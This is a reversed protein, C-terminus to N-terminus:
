LELAGAIKTTAKSKNLTYLHLGSVGERILEQCQSTAYDIGTERIAKPEDGASNLAKLLAAPFRSGEALEAMRKMGSITTIPMIGAVIPLNIGELACRERYDLFDHNDFFLQTCIYDAGEDIKAKFYDMEKLRNQTAPHGEPFGAVGVEFPHPHNKIFRVLDAAYKFDDNSRDYNPNDRPPDGRLALITGVKDKAYGDLIETMEEKSHGICTLHPITPIADDNMIRRVVSRTRDRTTGGAGYTVSVFAPNLQKLEGVTNLLEDAGAEDKPPFFEFSLTPRSAQLLSLIEM